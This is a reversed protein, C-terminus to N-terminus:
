WPPLSASRMRFGRAFRLKWFDSPPRINNRVFEEPYLGVIQAHGIVLHTCGKLEEQWPAAEALDAEVVRIEPHLRRLTATNVPHKDLAVIEGIGSQELLRILNQGVLGAAGTVVIKKSSM